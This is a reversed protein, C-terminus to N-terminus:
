SLKNFVGLTHIMQGLSVTEGRCPSHSTTPETSACGVLKLRLNGLLHPTLQGDERMREGSLFSPFAMAFPQSTTAKLFSAWAGPNLALSSFGGGRVIRVQSM